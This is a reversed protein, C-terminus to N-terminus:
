KRKKLEKKTAPCYKADLSYPGPGFAFVIFWVLFYLVALEGKTALPNWGLHVHVYAMIMLLASLAAAIRTWLGLVLLIGGFFEIVGAVFLMNIGLNLGFLGMGGTFPQPDSGMFGFLKMAGHMIFMLGAIVRLALWAWKQSSVAWNNLSKCM